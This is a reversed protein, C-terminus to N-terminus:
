FTTLSIITFTKSFSHKFFINDVSSFTALRLSTPRSPSTSRRSLGLGRPLWPTASNRSGNRPVCQLDTFLHLNTSLYHFTLADKHFFYALPGSWYMFTASLPKLFVDWPSKSKSVHTSFHWHMPCMTKTFYRNNTHRLHLTLKRWHELLDLLKINVCTM